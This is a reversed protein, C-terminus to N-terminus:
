ICLRSLQRMIDRTDPTSEVATPPPSRVTFSEPNLSTASSASSAKFSSLSLLSPASKSNSVSSNTAAASASSSSSPSPPPFPLSVHGSATTTPHQSSLSPTPLSTFALPYPVTVDVPPRQRREMAVAVQELVQDAYQRAVENFQSAKYLKDRMDDVQSELNKMKEPIWRTDLEKYLSLQNVDAASAGAGASRQGNKATTVLTDDVRPQCHKEWLRREDATLIDIEIDEAAKAPFIIPTDGPPLKLGSDLISAHFTNYASILQTWQEDEQKLKVMQEEYERLKRRNEVNQKHPKKPISKSSLSSSEKPDQPRNYWSLHIKNNMTMNLVEEQVAKAIKLASSSTSIGKVTAPTMADASKRGCWALLQKMRAIDPLDASIHRYFGKPDIAPHPQAEFGSGISSARKGRLTFSSRRSDGRMDKNKKIMPTERMPIAVISEEMRAMTRDGATRRSRAVSSSSSSPGNGNSRPHRSAKASSGQHQQQKRSVHTGGRRPDVLAEESPSREPTPPHTSNGSGNVDVLFKNTITRPTSLSSPQPPGTAATKKRAFVFGRDEEMFRKAPRHQAPDHYSSISQMSESAPLPAPWVGTSHSTSRSQRQHDVNHTSRTQPVFDNMDDEDSVDLKRKQARKGTTRITTTATDTATPQRTTTAGNAKPKPKKNTRSRSTPKTSLAGLTAPAM